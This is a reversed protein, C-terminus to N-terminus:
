GPAFLLLPTVLLLASRKMPPTPLKSLLSTLEHLASGILLNETDICDLYFLLGKIDDRLWGRKQLATELANISDPNTAPDRANERTVTIEENCNECEYAFPYGPGPM